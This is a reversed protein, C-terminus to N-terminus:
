GGGRSVGQPLHDVLVKIFPTPPWNKKLFTPSDFFFNVFSIFIDFNKANSHCQYNTIGVM